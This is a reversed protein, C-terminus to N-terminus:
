RGAIRQVVCGAATTEAVIRALFAASVILATLVTAHKTATNNVGVTPVLIVKIHGSACTVFNQLASAEM